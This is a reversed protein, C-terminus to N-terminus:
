FSAQISLGYRRSSPGSLFDFGQGNGVGLAAVNPDFNVGEPTNYADFYLNYGSLTVRLSGFPTRDLIGTPLSYGLSVEQLRVVSGDYIQLEDPGFLINDFYYQSNNIQVTNQEGTDQNVGPLIFTNLRDDTDTTLGRGLVTAITQSYIDGGSVHSVLFNFNFNRFSITNSVNLTYDPNPNGIEFQGSEVVYDGQSNTLFEGNENRQIRSGVIAGLPRGPIAANGLNSFGAYPIIDTDAGLDTVVPDIKSFNSNVEWFFGDASDSNIIDIGLDVEVGKVSIEGINTQTSTYGTSADLDRRIILDRTVRNFYSANLNFRNEFWRSEIGFEIETLTEPKLDPNGLANDTTNSVVFNGGDDLFRQTSLFLRNAVPYGTPFNASTGYGARLKLFNITSNGRLGEFATTPLFSASVSPYAISRNDAALNSVWDNRGALTLYLYNNFDIEAQAYVGAINQESFFQIEDQLQFNYHRLIGFVQQGSSSVGNQDFVTRRTTAGVNFSLGFEDSLDFDGNLSLNHDWITNTNNYTRYFGSRILTSLASGAGGKNQYNVNNESYMDIGFRYTLDLNDSVKYSLASNGFVRNTLQQASANAVTWLPNQIDNGQRYYVSSGDIPNQYPLGMLDVNRPTFFVNSFVSAGGGSFVTNGDGASVPPSKFDTRSFNLTGSISFNNTLEARGGVGLNNRRVVNGPTFGEDELLGASVNFNVKGDDSGGAVNVSTNSVMGTRFFNEVSNYPKWDYRVGQLEPFAQPIGTGSSATSYPHPLTGNDDFASSRGWGGVGDRRFSPGWNSYFWGFAQDFGGGFEMTYDPLSAVENFFLSTNVTIETKKRGGRASGNKTTILIVGNRGATGYLTAAALGKLVNVSEINNPDLDFFRSGGANGEVFDGQANTDSSFPVGDVIFLPQNNGSFSSLGRININTGSGSIGSQATIQVGSAKGSLIRGVDGEARSELQESDVEAVSYGLAKKERSIGQATVIVEDLQAENPQLTVDIVSSGDVAFEVTTMGLYSFVLVDGNSASISYNGDFDTQVGTTTGKILVNVGPLPMGQGDTVTGTVTYQEQAFTVQVIFALFLTLIGHLKRKM